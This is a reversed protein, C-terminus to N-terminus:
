RPRSLILDVRDLALPTGPAPAVVEATCPVSLEGLWRMLNARTVTVCDGPVLSPMDGTPEAGRLRRGIKNTALYWAAGAKWRRTRGMPGPTSLWRVFRVARAGVNPASRVRDWSAALDDVPINGVLARGGPRMATAVLDLFAVAAADTPAYHLVAYMLVRDFGGAGLERRAADTALDISRLEVRAGLGLAAIRARFVALAEDAFDVGVYGHCTAALAAGLVGTGCGVELLSHDPQLQLKTRVDDVMRRLNRASTGAPRVSQRAPDDFRAADNHLVRVPESGHASPRATTM